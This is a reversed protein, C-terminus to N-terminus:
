RSSLPGILQPRNKAKRCLKAKQVQDLTQLHKEELLHHISSNLAANVKGM